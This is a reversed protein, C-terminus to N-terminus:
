VLRAEEARAVDQVIYVVIDGDALGLVLGTHQLKLELMIIVTPHQM